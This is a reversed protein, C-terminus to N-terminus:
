RTSKITRARRRRNLWFRVLDRFSAWVVKFRGSTAVGTLRAHYTIQLAKIRLGREHARILLEPTLFGPSLSSVEVTDLYSKNYIQTFNCDRLRLDFLLRLLFINVRSIFKRYLTYGARRDRELVVIDADVLLPAVKDLDCLDFPYDVGNHTVWQYRAHKFGRLVSGASGMNHPNHLVTIEPHEQALEDAIRGTADSGCDDVIIIEFRECRPRLASLARAMTERISEEENYAPFVVTLEM